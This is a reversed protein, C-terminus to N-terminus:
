ITKQTSTARPNWLCHFYAIIIAPLEWQPYSTDTRGNIGKLPQFWVLGIILAIKTNTLVATSEKSPNFCIKRM